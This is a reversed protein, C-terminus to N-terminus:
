ILVEKLPALSLALLRTHSVALDPATLKSLPDHLLQCLIFDHVFKWPRLGPSVFVNGIRYVCILTM